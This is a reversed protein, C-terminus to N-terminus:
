DDDEGELESAENQKLCNDCQYPRHADDEARTFMGPYVREDEVLEGRQTADLDNQLCEGCVIMGHETYEYFNDPGYPM